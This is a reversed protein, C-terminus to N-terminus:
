SINNEPDPFIHKLLKTTYRVVVGVFIAAFITGERVGNLYGFIIFSLVAATTVNTIDFIIKMKSFQIKSKISLAMVIGEGPVMSIRAFVEIAVGIGLVIVSLVILGWCELLNSPVVGSVMAMTLDQFVSFIIAVPIQMLHMKTFNDKLLIYQMFIFFANFCLLVVGLSIGTGLSVVFPISAIPTTGLQAKTSLSIGLTMIFIGIVMICYREKMGLKVM